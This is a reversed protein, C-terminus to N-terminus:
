QIGWGYVSPYYTDQERVYTQKLLELNVQLDSVYWRGGTKELYLQGESVGPTGFLRVNMWAAPNRPLSSNNDGSETTIAGIRYNAPVLKRDLYYRISGGLEERVSVLLTDEQVTGEQMANLFRTTVAVIERKERDIGVLDALLGIKFDEPLVAISELVPLQQQEPRRIPAQTKQVTGTTQELTIERKSVVEGTAAAAAASPQEAQPSKASRSEEANKERACGAVLLLVIPLLM